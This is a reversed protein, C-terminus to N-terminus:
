SSDASGGTQHDTKLRRWAGHGVMRWPVLSREWAIQQLTIDLRIDGAARAVVQVSRIDECILCALPRSASANAAYRWATRQAVSSTSFAKEANTLRSSCATMQALPSCRKGPRAFRRQNRILVTGLAPDVHEMGVPRQQLGRLRSRPRLRFRCARRDCRELGETTPLLRAFGLGDGELLVQVPYFEHPLGCGSKM